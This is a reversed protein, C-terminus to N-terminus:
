KRPSPVFPEHSIRRHNDLALLFAGMTLDNVAADAYLRLLDVSFDFDHYPPFGYQVNYNMKTIREKIIERVKEIDPMIQASKPRLRGLDFPTLSDVREYLDGEGTIRRRVEQIAAITIASQLPEPWVDGPFALGQALLYTRYVVEASFFPVDPLNEGKYPLGHGRLFAAALLYWSDEALAQRATLEPVVKGSPQVVENDDQKEPTFGGLGSGVTTVDAEARQYDVKKVRVEYVDTARTWLTEDRNLESLAAALILRLVFKELSMQSDPNRRLEEITNYTPKEVDTLLRARERVDHIRYALQCKVFAIYVADDGSANSHNRTWDEVFAMYRAQQTKDYASLMGWLLMATDVSPSLSSVNTEYKGLM